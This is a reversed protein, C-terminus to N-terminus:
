YRSSADMVRFSDAYDGDILVSWRQPSADLSFDESEAGPQVPADLAQMGNLVSIRIGTRNSTGTIRM